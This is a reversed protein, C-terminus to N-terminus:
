KKAGLEDLAKKTYITLRGLPFLDAIEVSKVTRVDVGKFKSNENSATVILVGATSKYRRGRSKGIGPRVSKKQLAVSFLSGLVKELMSVLDKTKTPLSEVVFPASEVSKISSYRRLVHDKSATASFAINLAKEEEKKNMKVPTRIGSAAHVSRGGRTGSVETGIWYFQTGRRWMTKRPVRAIGKGYHGKWEHRRHSITGSASHRRGAENYPSHWLRNQTKDVEFYKQAIDERITTSFLKPLEVDSKANGTMDFLKAKM